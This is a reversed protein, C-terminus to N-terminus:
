LTRGRTTQRSIGALIRDDLDQERILSGEIYYHNVVSGGAAMALTGTTSTAGFGIGVNPRSLGSNLAQNVAAADFGALMYSTFDPLKSLPGKEAPSHPMYKAVAAAMRQAARTINELTQELGGAFANGLAEGAGRFGRNYSAIVELVKNQYYRWKEPHKKLNEVLATLQAELNRRQIERSAEFHFREEAAKKELAIKKQEFMLDEWTRQASEVKKNAELLDQQYKAQYEQEASLRRQAYAEESEGEQREVTPLQYSTALAAAAEKAARLEDKADKLRQKFVKLDQESVLKELLKESPTLTKQTIADFARLIDGSLTTFAATLKSREAEITKQGAEIVRRLADSLKTPLDQFGLLMGATIGRPIAEGIKWKAYDDTTSGTHSYAYDIGRKVLGGLFGGLRGPLSKVGEIVGDAIAKGINLAWGFAMKAINGLVIGIGQLIEYVRDKITSLVSKIGEWIARGLLVAAAKMASLINRMVSLAANLSRSVIAKIEDWAKGWDGRIIALVIKIVSLINRIITEVTTRINSWVAKVITLIEKQNQDVVTRIFGFVARVNASLSELIPRVFAVISRFASIVKEAFQVVIPLVTNRIYNFTADVIERFTESRTYAFYLAAGLAVIAGAILVLPNAYLSANLALMAARMAQLMGVIHVIVYMAAFGAALGVLATKLLESGSVLNKVWVVADKIQGFFGAIADADLGAIFNAFAKVLRTAYPLLHIGLEIALTEAASGAAQLAGNFGKTRAEVLRQADGGKTLAERLKNWRDTGGSLTIFSSRIADSGFIMNLAVNRQEETLGALATEFTKLIQPMSKFNGGADYMSIGLEKMEKKARATPSMLARMMTKLSTGADSGVVGADAMMTIATTLDSASQGAMKWVASAQQFGLAVDSLEATSKNAAAAFLDVIEGAKGADLGFARLSRAVMMASDAFQINGALGLQLTGRTAKLIEDVSFGAKGLATMADAADKASVSPLKFDKGLALAEKSLDRMQSETAETVSQVINMSQEYNGAARLSIIGVGTTALGIGALARSAISGTRILSSNMIAMSRYFGSTDATVRAVLQAVTLAM